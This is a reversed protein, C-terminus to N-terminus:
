NEPFGLSPIEGRDLVKGPPTSGGARAHVARPPAGGAGRRHPPTRALAMTSPPGIGEGPRLPPAAPGSPAFGVQYAYVVAHTRDRLGLKSLVRRVHSKVTAQGLTLTWAIEANSKGESLLTFVDLERPSLQALPGSRPPDLTGIAALRDSLQWVLVLYGAAATVLAARLEHPHASKLVIGRSGAQIVASPHEGVDSALVLVSLEARALMRVADVTSADPSMVSLLVVDPHLSAAQGVAEACDRVAGTVEVDSGGVIAALASRPLAEDEVVLVRVARRAIRGVPRDPVRLVGVPMEDDAVGPETQLGM